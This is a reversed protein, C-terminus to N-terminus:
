LGLYLSLLLSYNLKFCGQLILSSLMLGSQLFLLGLEFFFELGISINSKLFPRLLGRRWILSLDEFYALFTQSSQHIAARFSAPTESSWGAYWFGGLNGLGSRPDDKAGPGDESDSAWGYTAAVSAAYVSVSALVLAAVQIKQIKKQHLIQISYRKKEHICNCKEKQHKGEFMEEYVRDRNRLRARWMNLIDIKSLYNLETWYGSGQTNKLETVRSVWIQIGFKNTAYSPKYGLEVLAFRIWNKLM